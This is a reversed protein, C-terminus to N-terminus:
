EHGKTDGHTESQPYQSDGITAAKRTHKHNEATLEHKGRSYTPLEPGQNLVCVKTQLKAASGEFWTARPGILEPGVKLSKSLKHNEPGCFQHLHTGGVQTLTPRFNDSRLPFTKEGM